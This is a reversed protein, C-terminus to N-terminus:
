LYEIVNEKNNDMMHTPTYTYNTHSKTQIFLYNKKRM